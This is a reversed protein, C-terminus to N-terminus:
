QAMKSHKGVNRQVFKYYFSYLHNFDNLISENNDKTKGIGRERETEKWDITEKSRTIRDEAPKQGLEDNNDDKIRWFCLNNWLSVNRAQTREVNEM